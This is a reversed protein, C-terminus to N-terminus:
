ARSDKIIQMNIEQRRSRSSYGNGFDALHIKSGLRSIAAPQGIVDKSESMKASETLEGEILEPAIGHSKLLGAILTDVGGVNLQMPSINVSVPVLPEGERQWQAIQACVQDIVLEGLQVICGNKEALPIFESPHILG